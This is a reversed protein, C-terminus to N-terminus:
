VKLILNIIANVDEVDVKGDGTVDSKARLEDSAALGLIINIVANVDEVDVKGDGNVDGAAADRVTVTCTAPLVNDDISAVTITATGYNVGVVQVQKKGDITVVRALAVAADSTTATIDNVETPDFTPTLMMIENPAITAETKDLGILSNVNMLCSAYVALDSELSAFIRCEGKKHLTVLGTSDVTAVAPNSTSWVVEGAKSAPITTAKLQLTNGAISEAENQSLKVKETLDNKINTFNQWYPATFYAVTSASPVHLEAGYASFTNEACTPPVEAYSRVVGPNLRSNSVATIESGVKLTQIQSSNLGNSWTNWAGNGTITVSNLGSCGDFCDGFDLGVPYTWTASNPITLSGTFGSCGDFAGIGISTVSNPITLSGTFGSCGSFAWFGISTVSNPINLSGTFGSCGDFAGYGIETVSNPIFFTKIGCVLTNTATEIVANCNDRSDYKPNDTAVKLTELGTCNGFAGHGIDTVSNPINLSGTFGSCGYFANGGIYTVSNPINLSGTFGSCDEFALGGISTVSNPINLSGTFGSCGSFASKGISTVSNPINLSGTFGSCNSFAWEGICTVSNPINLSGTFGSCGSFAYNGITARLQTHHAVRHIRQM